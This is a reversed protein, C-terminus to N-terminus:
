RATVIALVVKGKFKPDENSLVQGNVDPFKYTFVEDPDRMTTHTTPCSRCIWM